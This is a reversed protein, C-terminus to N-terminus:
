CLLGQQAAYTIRVPSNGPIYHAEGTITNVANFNWNIGNIKFLEKKIYTINPNKALTFWQGPTLSEFKQTIINKSM